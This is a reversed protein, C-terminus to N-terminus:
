PNDNLWNNKKLTDIIENKANEIIFSATQEIEQENKKSLANIIKQHRNFSHKRRQIIYSSNLRAIGRPHNVRRRVIQILDYLVNNNLYDKKILTEHFANNLTGAESIDNSQLAIKYKQNIENLQLIYDKDIKKCIIKLAAVELIKRSDYLNELFLRNFAKVTIKNRSNKKVLGQETIRQLADRVPFRSIDFMKAVSDQTIVEGPKYKGSYIDEILTEYIIDSVNKLQDLKKKYKNM